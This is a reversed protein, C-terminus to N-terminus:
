HPRDRPVEKAAVLHMRIRERARFLRIKVNSRRLGLEAGLQEYCKGDFYFGIVLARALPPLEDVARRIARSNLDSAEREAVLDAGDGGALEDLNIPEGNLTTRRFHDRVVNRAIADLWARVDRPRSRRSLARLARCYTEQALDAGLHCSRVTRCLAARIESYHILIERRADDASDGCM